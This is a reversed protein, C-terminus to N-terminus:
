LCVLIVLLPIDLNSSCQPSILWCFKCVIMRESQSSSCNEFLNQDQSSPTNESATETIPDVYLYLYRLFFLPSIKQLIQCTNQLSGDNELNSLDKTM